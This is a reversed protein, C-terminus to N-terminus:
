KPSRKRNTSFSKYFQVTYGDEGPPRGTGMSKLAEWCENLTFNGDIEDCQESSLKPLQQNIDRSFEQFDENAGNNSSTFLNEYFNGGYNPQRQRNCLRVFLNSMLHINCLHSDNTM